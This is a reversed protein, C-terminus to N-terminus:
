IIITKREHWANLIPHCNHFCVLIPAVGAKETNHICTSAPNSSYVLIINNM